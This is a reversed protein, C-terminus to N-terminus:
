TVYQSLKNWLQVYKAKAEKPEKLEKPEKEKVIPDAIKKTKVSESPTSQSRQIQKRELNMSKPRTPRSTWVDVTQAKLRQRYYEKFSSATPPREMM